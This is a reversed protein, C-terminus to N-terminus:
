DNALRKQARDCLYEAIVSCGSSHLGFALYWNIDIPLKAYWYSMCWHFALVVLLYDFCMSSREVVVKTAWALPFASVWLSTCRIISTYGDRWWLPDYANDAFVGIQYPIRGRVLYFTPILLTFWFVYFCSILVWIQLLTFLISHQRFSAFWPDQGRLYELVKWTM